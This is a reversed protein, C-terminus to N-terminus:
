IKLNTRIEKNNQQSIQYSQIVKGNINGQSDITIGNDDYIELIGNTVDRAADNLMYRVLNEYTLAKRYTVEIFIPDFYSERPYIRLVDGAGPTDAEPLENLGDYGLLDPYLVFRAFTGSSPNFFNEGVIKQSKIRIMGREWIECVSGLLRGRVESVIGAGGEFNWISNGQLGTDGEGMDTIISTRREEDWDSGEEKIEDDRYRQGSKIDTISLDLYKPSIKIYYKGYNPIIDNDTLPYVIQKLLIDSLTDIIPQSLIATKNAFALVTTGTPIGQGTITAGITLEIGPTIITIVESGEEINASFDTQIGDISNITNFRDAPIRLIQQGNFITAIQDTDGDDFLNKWVSELDHINSNLTQLAEFSTTQFDIYKIDAYKPDIIYPVKTMFAGIYDTPAIASNPLQYLADAQTAAITKNPNNDTIDTTSPSNPNYQSSWMYTVYSEEKALFGLIQKTVEIPVYSDISNDLLDVKIM